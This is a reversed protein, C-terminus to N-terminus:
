GVVIAKRSDIARDGRALFAINRAVHAAHRQAIGRRQVVERQAAPSGWDRRTDSAVVAIARASKGAATIGSIGVAAAARYPAQRTKIPLIQTISLPHAVPPLHTIVLLSRSARTAGRYLSSIGSCPFGHITSGTVSRRSHAEKM